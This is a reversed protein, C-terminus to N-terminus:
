LDWITFLAIKYRKQNHLLHLHQILFLILCILFIVRCLFACLRSKSVTGKFLDDTSVQPQITAVM